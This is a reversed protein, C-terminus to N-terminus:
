FDDNKLSSFFHAFTTRAISSGKLESRQGSIVGAQIFIKQDPLFMLNTQFAMMKSFIQTFIMRAISDCMDRDFFGHKEFRNEYRGGAGTVVM